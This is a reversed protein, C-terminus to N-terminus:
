AQLEKKWETYAKICILLYVFYLGGSLYLGKYTYLGIAIVDVFIWFLWSQLIKRTLLYQAVLSTATIVSDVYPASADTYRHFLYGIAMSSFPIATLWALLEKKSISSVPLKKEPEGFKIKGLGWKAWGYIGLFLYVFHLIVDPYLKAQYFVVIFACVNILGLPWNWISQKATLWVCLLGFIVAVIEFLNM